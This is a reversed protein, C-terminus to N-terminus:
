EGGGARQVSFDGNQAVRVVYIEGFGEAPSPPELRGLIAFLAKEPVVGKGARQRNRTLCGNRDVPFYYAVLEAGFENGLAAYRTRNKATPNTNDVAVNRRGELAERIKAEERRRRNKKGRWDDLSVHEHTEKLHREYFTTKGAGPIGVLVALQM